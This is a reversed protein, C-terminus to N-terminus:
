ESIGDYITNFQKKAAKGERELWTEQILEETQKDPWLEHVGQGIRTLNQNPSSPLIAPINKYSPICTKLQSSRSKSLSSKQSM